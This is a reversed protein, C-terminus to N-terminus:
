NEIPYIDPRSEYRTVIGNTALEIPIAYKAPIPRTGNIWHSVFGPTINLKKAFEVQTINGLDLYEKIKMILVKGYNATKNLLM